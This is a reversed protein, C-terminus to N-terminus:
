GVDKKYMAGTVSEAVIVKAMKDAATETADQKFFGSVTLTTNGKRVETVCDPSRPASNTQQPRNTM